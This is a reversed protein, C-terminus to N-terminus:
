AASAALAEQALDIREALGSRDGTLVSRSVSALVRRRGGPFIRFADALIAGQAGFGPALVPVTSPLRAVDIGRTSLDITAGLVVGASGLSAGSAAEPENWREVQRLVSAAVTLEGQESATWATQVASAEPNSTAALVFVGRGARRATDAVDKLSDVGLYPSLTVADCRFPADAVLWAAAYGANSSGIDGRKADAIVIVGAETAAQLVRELATFGASGCAEFFSVQAKVAAVSQDHAADVVIRGFEELGAGTAKLGWQQLIAPHPDIGVCLNGHGDMREELRTGFPDQAIM